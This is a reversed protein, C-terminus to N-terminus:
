AAGELGDLRCRARTASVVNGKREYRDLAQELATVAEDPKGALELVEALDANTDGQGSLDDTTAAIAVAERALRVAEERDGRRALVKAKVARWNMQNFADDSAGMDAARSAWADAEDFRDLRYLANALCSAASSLFAEDGLEELIACGASGLEAAAVPDGALQEVLNSEIGTLAGLLLGGGREALAARADALLARAEDFRGQWALAM